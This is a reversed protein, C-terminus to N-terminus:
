RPRLYSDFWAIATDGVGFNHKLAELMVEPHVRLIFRCYPRQMSM